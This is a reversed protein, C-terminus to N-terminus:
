AGSILEASEAYFPWGTHTPPGLSEQEFNGKSGSDLMAQLHPRVDALADHALLRMLTATEHQTLKQGEAQARWRMHFPHVVRAPEVTRLARLIDWGAPDSDGFHHHPLDAPLKRLLACVAPTPFSSAVILTSRRQDARALQVFTTKHNEVTLLREATTLIRSARELEAVNLTCEYKLADSDHRTDDSFCLTLPGSYHLASDSTQIGLAELPTERGLLLALARKLPRQEAELHKSDLGLRTSADRVLTGEPWRRATLQFLLNLLADVRAPERWQFPGCMRPAALEDALMKCLSSWLEPLLPHVARQYRALVALTQQQADAGSTTGFLGHLWPESAVPLLVREVRRRGPQRQLTLQQMREAEREAAKRDEASHLGAADLLDEWGRRFPQLPATTRQRRAKQWQRHLEVLWAPLPPTPNTM